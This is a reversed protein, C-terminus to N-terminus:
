WIFGGKGGLVQKNETVRLFGCFFQGIDGWTFLFLGLICWVM